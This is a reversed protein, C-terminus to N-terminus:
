RYLYLLWGVTMLISLILITAGTEMIPFPEGTVELPIMTTEKSRERRLRELQPRGPSVLGPYRATLAERDLWAIAGDRDFPEGVPPDGGGDVGDIPGSPVVPDAVADAAAVEPRKKL